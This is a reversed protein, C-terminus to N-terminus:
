LMILNWKLIVSKKKEDNIGISGYKGAIIVLYFDSEDIVRKIFDWQSKNSAPFLEM